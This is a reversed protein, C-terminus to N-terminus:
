YTNTGKTKKEFIKLKQSPLKYKNDKSMNSYKKLQYTYFRESIKYM